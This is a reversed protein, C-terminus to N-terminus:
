WLRGEPLHLARYARGPAEQLSLLGLKRLQEEDSKHELGRVRKAARRLVRELAEMGKKCHPAWFRACNELHLRVLARYLPITM